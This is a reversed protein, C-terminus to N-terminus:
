SLAASVHPVPARWVLGHSVGDAGAQWGEAVWLGAVAILHGEAYILPVRDRLWPLVGAEQFLKKLPHRGHRGAVHLREGGQRFRVEAEAPLRIGVGDTCEHVSLEGAGPGLALREPPRWSLRKSADHAGLPPGAFLRQRYRRLEVGPWSAVPLRDPGAASLADLAEELRRLSPAPLSRAALWHRVLNHRRPARMRMLAGLCLSHQAHGPEGAWDSEALEALLEVAEGQLAMARQWGAAFGPWRASIAPLVQARLYNRDFDSAANSPDEVWQLERAEAYSRLAQRGVGLWPRLLRGAGLPRSEPMGAMGTPGAGRNLRMLLTETQDDQHHAMLLLDDAHDLLRAFVAYRARRAADEPGRGAQLDVQVRHVEAALGLRRATGECHASWDDADTALGHHVHVVRPVPWSVGLAPRNETTLRYVADLLVTSDLGGSCAVWLTRCRSYPALRDALHRLLFAQCDGM